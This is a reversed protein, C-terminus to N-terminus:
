VTTGCAPWVHSPYQWLALQGLGLFYVTQEGRQQMRHMPPRGNQCAECSKSSPQLCLRSYVSDHFSQVSLWVAVASAQRLRAKHRSHSPPEVKPGKAGGNRWNRIARRKQRDAEKRRRRKKKWM